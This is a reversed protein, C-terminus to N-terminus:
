FPLELAACLFGVLPAGARCLRTFEALFGPASVRSEEIVAVAVFDKWRLAEALPHAPDFGPPVRALREGDMTLHRRFTVGGVAKRWAAPDELLRERIKRVAGGDPRWSGAAMFCGAPELHLYFGPAHADRGDDHRFQIGTHTKFPSKDKSFRVDRYIRFLSGGSPRPDARFHPSIAKLRPAFEVIFRLAPERVREEYTDRHRQFWDRDNNRALERLFAFTAPTFHSSSTM